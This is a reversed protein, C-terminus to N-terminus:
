CCNISITIATILVSNLNRLHFRIGDEAKDSYIEHLGKPGNGARDSYIITVDHYLAAAKAHEKVFLATYPNKEDPYWGSSPLFVIKLKRDEKTM